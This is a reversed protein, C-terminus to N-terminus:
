LRLNFLLESLVVCPFPFNGAKVPVVFVPNCIQLATTLLIGTMFFGKQLRYSHLEPDPADENHLPFIKAVRRPKKHRQNRLVNEDAAFGPLIAM